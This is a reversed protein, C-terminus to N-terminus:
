KKVYKEYTYNLFHDVQSLNDFRCKEALENSLNCYIEFQEVTFNNPEPFDNFGMYSFTKITRGNLVPYKTPNYTNMIETLANIGYRTINKIQNHGYEFLKIVNINKNSAIYEILSIIKRFDTAFITKGRLL